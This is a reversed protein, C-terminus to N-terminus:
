TVSPTNYADTLPQPELDQRAAQKREVDISADPDSQRVMKLLQRKTQLELKTEPTVYRAPRRTPLLIRSPNVLTV